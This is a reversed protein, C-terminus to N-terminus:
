SFLERDFREIWDLVGILDQLFQYPDYHERSVVRDDPTCGIIDFRIPCARKMMLFALQLFQRNCYRNNTLLLLSDSPCLATQQLYFLFSDGTDARRLDPQASPAAFIRYQRGGPMESEAGEETPTHSDSPMASSFTRICSISNLNRDGHFADKWEPPLSFVSRFSESMAGFETECAPLCVSARREKPHIPRFCALGDTYRVSPTQWAAAAKTRTYCAELSGGLVVLRSHGKELPRNITLFGLEELLPYIEDRHRDLVAVPELEQTELIRGDSLLRGNYIRSFEARDVKLVAFLERLASSESFDHFQSRLLGLLEDRKLEPAPM